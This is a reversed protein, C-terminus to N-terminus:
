KKIYVSPKKYGNEDEDELCLRMITNLQSDTVRGADESMKGIDGFCKGCLQGIGSVYFERNGIPCDVAVDTVAQCLVCREFKTIIERKSV